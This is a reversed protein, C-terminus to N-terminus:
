KSVVKIPQAKIVSPQSYQQAVSEGKLGRALNINDTPYLYIKTTQSGLLTQIILGTYGDVRFPQKIVNIASQYQYPDTVPVLPKQAMSGNADKTNVSITYLVQASSTSQYYLLGCTFPQVSFQNLMERYTVNPIGSSITVNGIVLNGSSDFGSNTIYKWSNLIEFDTVSTASANTINVIYPSSTPAPAPAAAPADGGNAFFDEGTFGWGLDNDWKGDVHVFNNQLKRNADSIYKRINM